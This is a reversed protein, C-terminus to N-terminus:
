SRAGTAPVNLAALIRDAGAELLEEALSRGLAEAQEPSGSRQRRILQSGDPAGVLADLHLTGDPQMRCHGAVPVQCAGGLRRNLAREARVRVTTAADALVALRDLTDADNERCELVLVGQGIAPVFRDVAFSERIREHLGLRALGAHALLIADFEGEDLKRLRTGLNGRLPSIRLDPRLAMIQSQRRLSATGLHAGQPLADLSAYHNSVFADRPDEGDMYIALDLGEPQEAPVDKVCHVAVDARGDLMAQELEKVFLGKGGSASLPASLWRDGQTSMPVLEVTLDPHAAMLLSRVHEAQWLALPSERTAIRLVSM